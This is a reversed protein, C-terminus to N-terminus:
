GRKIYISSRGFTLCIKVKPHATVAERSNNKNPAAGDEEFYYDGVTDLSPVKTELPKGAEHLALLRSGFYTLATNGKSGNKLGIFKVKLYYWFMQWFLALVSHSKSMLYSLSFTMPGYDNAKKFIESRVWRNMYRPRIKQGKEGPEFYVGHLMGLLLNELTSREICITRLLTHCRFFLCSFFSFFFLPDVRNRQEGEGDFWHHGETEKPVNLSNPGTRVYQSGRLSEPITGIVECEIGDDGVTEEFVPYFNGSLYPHPHAEKRKKTRVKIDPAIASTTSSSM